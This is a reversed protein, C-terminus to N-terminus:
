KRSPTELKHQKSQTQPELRLPNVPSPRGRFQLITPFPHPHPVVLETVGGDPPTENAGNQSPTPAPGPKSTCAVRCATGEWPRKERRHKSNTNNKNRKPEPRLHSVLTTRGQIQLNNRFQHSHSVALEAVGGDPPTENAGNQSPM